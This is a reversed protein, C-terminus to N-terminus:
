PGGFRCHPKAAIKSVACLEPKIKLTLVINGYDLTLVSGLNGPANSRRVCGLLKARLRGGQLGLWGM